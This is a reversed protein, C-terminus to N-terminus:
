GVSASSRTPQTMLWSGCNQLPSATKNIRANHTDRMKKKEKKKTMSISCYETPNEGGARELRRGREM